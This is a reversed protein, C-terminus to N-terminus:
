RGTRRFRYRGGVPKAEFRQGSSCTINFVGAGEGATTSSVSGCRFGIHDITRAVTRESLPMSAALPQAAETTAPEAALAQAISDRAFRNQEAVSTTPAQAAHPAVPHRAARLRAPRAAPADAPVVLADEVADTPAAVPKAKPVAATVVSKPQPTAAADRGAQTGAWAGGIAVMLMLAGAIAVNRNLDLPRGELDPLMGFSRAGPLPRAAVIRTMMPPAVKPELERAVVAAPEATKAPEPTAAGQPMGVFRPPVNLFMANTIYPKPAPPPPERKVGIKADYAARKAPDRLTEYALGVDALGGVPRPRFFGIERAFARGIEELTAGPTLGLVDYHNPRTAVTSSM